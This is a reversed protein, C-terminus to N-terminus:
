VPSVGSPATIRLTGQLLPQNTPLESFDTVSGGERPVTGEVVGEEGEGFVITIVAPASEYGGANIARVSYVNEGPAFNGFESDAIYSWEPDGQEFFRLRYENVLIGIAEAPATGRLEIRGENTQYVAGSGAPSLIKPPPPPERNRLVTRHASALVNGEEDVAEILIVVKDEDPLALELLFTGEKRDIIAQYGNVRVASVSADVRGQVDITAAAVSEEDNPATVAILEARSPPAVPAKARKASRRKRRSEEVFDSAILSPDLPSRFAYLDGKLDAGPPLAFTQGEGIFLSEAAGPIQIEVGLGDGSYVSISEVGVTAETSSPLRFSMRPTGIVRVIAGSFVERPPIAIWLQGAALTLTLRGDEAGRRSEEIAVETAEDLRLTSGDFLDLSAFSNASTMVRDGPYLKLANEARQAPEGELSVNVVGHGETMLTAAASRITNGVGFLKLIWVAGLVLFVIISLTGFVQRLPIRVHPEVGSYHRRRHRHPLM